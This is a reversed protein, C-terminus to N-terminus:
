GYKLKSNVRSAKVRRERTPARQEGAHRAHHPGAASPGRQVRDAHGPVVLLRRPFRRPSFCLTNLSRLLRGASDEGGLM